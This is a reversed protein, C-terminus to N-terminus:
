NIVGIFFRVWEILIIWFVQMKSIKLYNFIVYILYIVKLLIT